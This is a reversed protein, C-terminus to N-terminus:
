NVPNKQDKVATTKEAAATKGKTIPLENIQQKTKGRGATYVMESFEAKVDPQQESIKVNYNQKDTSTQDVSVNKVDVDTQTYTSSKVEGAKNTDTKPNESTLAQKAAASTKAASQNKNEVPIFQKEATNNEKVTTNDAAINSETSDTKVTTKPAATIEVEAEVEPDITLGADNTSKASDTNTKVTKATDNEATTQTAAAKTNAETTTTVTQQQEVVPETPTTNGKVDTGANQKPNLAPAAMVPKKNIAIEMNGTNNQCSIELRLEKGNLSLNLAAYGNTELATLINEIVANGDSTNSDDKKQDGQAKEDVKGQTNLKLKTSLIKLAQLLEEGNINISVSKDTDDSQASSATDASSPISNAAASLSELIQLLPNVNKGADTTQQKVTTLENLPNNFLSEISGSGVLNLNFGGLNEANAKIDTKGISIKIIDSFLYGASNLKPTKINM